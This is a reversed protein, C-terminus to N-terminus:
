CAMKLYANVNKKDIKYGHLFPIIDTIKGSSLNLLVEVFFGEFFYTNILSESDMYNDLFVAKSEVMQTKELLSLKAFKYITM